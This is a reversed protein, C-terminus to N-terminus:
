ARFILKLTGMHIEDGDALPRPEFAELREGNVHTYNTSALDMIYYRGGGLRTIKAHRRSVGADLAGFPTLDIDPFSHTAPDARGLTYESKDELGFVRDTGELELRAMGDKGENYVQRRGPGDGGAPGNMADSRREPINISKLASVTFGGPEPIVSSLTVSFRFFWCVNRKGERYLFVGPEM